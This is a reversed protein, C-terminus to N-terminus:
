VGGSSVSRIVWDGLWLSPRKMLAFGVEGAKFMGLPWVILGVVVRAGFIVRIRASEGVSLGCNLAVGFSGAEADAGPPFGLIVLLLKWVILTFASVSARSGQAATPTGTGKREHVLTEVLIYSELEYNLMKCM